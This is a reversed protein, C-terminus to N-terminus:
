FLSDFIDEKPERKPPTPEVVKALEVNKRGRKPRSQMLLEFMEDTDAAAPEAQTKINEADCVNTRPLKRPPAERAPSRARSRTKAVERSDSVFDGELLDLDSQEIPSDRSHKNNKCGNSYDSNDSNNVDSHKVVKYNDNESSKSLSLKLKIPPLNDSSSPEKRKLSEQSTVARTAKAAAKTSRGRTNEPETSPNNEKSQSNFLALM